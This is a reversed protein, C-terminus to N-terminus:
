HKLEFGQKIGKETIPVGKIMWEPLPQDLLYHAFFQEMRKNFDIRNEWKLPWHPEDNYNLFWAKKGLRRLAMFYEIGQYWPVATDGDNHLILVPTTIKDMDFIPSNELYLEPAEWLTQGIRSQTKEYQFMRSMGSGWRIGGYASIMNVVPAGSEACKFVDTKNLLYAIQYGGWSHGQVGIKSKDVFQNKSLAEIGSIVADYCSQGPYGIKYSIDPNFIIYGKNVYYSYNITSRHPEPARHQFLGDSSKEYFNVIVPYKKLPDFNEPKVLLGQVKMGNYDMWEFIEINGWAYDSQQPNLNSLIKQNQLLMNSAILDPFQQFNEKTFLLKDAEKAKLPRRNYAYAGKEITKSAGTMINLSGYGSTKDNEDFLFVMNENEIFDLESDLEILRKSIKSNRSTTINQPSKQNQPDLKWIDYRDYVLLFEDNSTWGPSGYTNPKDPVDNEEDAFSIEVNQTLNRKEKKAIDYVFWNLLEQDFWYLYKGGPSFNVRALLNKAVESQTGNREDIIFFDAFNSGIWTVAKMYPIENSVLYYPGDGKNSKRLNEHDSNELNLFKKTKINYVTEYSKNKLNNEQIEQMTFLMPDETTWVEVSVEDEKIALSDGLIPKGAIGFYLLNGNESFSPSANKTLFLQDKGFVDKSDVIKQTKMDENSWLYLNYPRIRRKTTDQDAIFSIHQGSKDASIKSFSGKEEIITVYSQNALDYLFVGSTQTSDKETRSFILKPSKEVYSYEEVPNLTDLKGSNLNHIFFKEKQIPKSISDKKESSAINAHYAIIGSWKEPVKFNTINPIYTTNFNSLDLIVLSDKPFDKKETKKRKLTTLSDESLSISFILHKNDSTFHSKQVRDFTIEKDNNTNKVHLTSNGKGPVAHYKIWQGDNSIFESDIHKWQAYADPTMIKKQSFLQNSLFFLILVIYLKNM